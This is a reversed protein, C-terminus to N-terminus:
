KLPGTGTKGPGPAGHCADLNVVRREAVAALPLADVKGELVLQEDGAPEILQADIEDLPAIREGVRFVELVELLHALEGQAVGADGGEAHGPALPDGGRLVSAELGQEIGLGPHNGDDALG